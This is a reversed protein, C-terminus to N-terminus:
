VNLLHCFCHWTRTDFIFTFFFCARCEMSIYFHISNIKNERFYLIIWQRISQNYRRVNECKVSQRLKLPLHTCIINNIVTFYQTHKDLFITRSHRHKSLVLHRKVHLNTRTSPPLLTNGVVTITDFGLNYSESLM